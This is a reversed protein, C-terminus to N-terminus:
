FRFVVGAHSQIFQIDPAAIVHYDAGLEFTLNPNYEYGFGFGVNVGFESNGDKPIYFGPGWGFYMSMPGGVKLNYRLNASINMWYTDNVITTDSSFTNYGFFAVVSLLPTFHYDADLLINFGPGFDNSFSGSPISTGGHISASWRRFTPFDRPPAFPKKDIDISIKAGAKIESHSVIIEKTYTGDINDNLKIRRAGVVAEVKHGPGLYNAIKDKPAVKVMFYQGDATKKSQRIDIDSHKSNINVENYFAKTWERTTKLGDGGPIGSAVIRLTYSGPIKTKDFSNAYTGDNPQGDSHCGDDFLEFSTEGHQLIEGGAQEALIQLKRDIMSVTDGNIVHIKKLEDLSVKGEHLLNGAGVIPVNCYVNIKAGTLPKGYKSLGAKVMVSNGTLNFLKNFVVDLEAGGEAFATTSYRVKQNNPIESTGLLRMKWEGALDGLLDGSLPFDLQYFSYRPNEGYRIKNNQTAPTIVKGSPTILELDIAEDVGEWYATFTVGDQDATVVVSVTDADDRALEGVPDTIVTWDVAGALVEIFFKRFILEDSTIRYTGGTAEALDTLKGENIGSSYGLGLPYVAIENAILDGQVDAIWLPTNEKGDTVLLVVQDPNPSAITTFQNLAENLGDGISTSGGKDISPITTTRLLTARAASLESLDADYAPDFPVVDHNFQVLGLRNGIDPKMMQVFHDAALRLIEIKRTTAGSVAYGGMSGSRDLVQIIDVKGELQQEPLDGAILSYRQYPFPLDSAKVKITWTGTDPNEIAVQEVVNVGDRHVEALAESAYSNRIAPTAPNAPDLEWPPYFATGAPNIILLDLDNELIDAAGPTGASDDWALTVKLEDEGPSVDFTYIDEDTASIIVGERFRKNRIVNVAEEANVLGYGYVYDPGVLDAGGGPNDDLDAATHCLIAKFTSPLPADDMTDDGFYTQRYQQIMLSIIGSVLPAAMSTGTKIGYPYTYDDLGDPVNGPGWDPILANNVDDIFLNAVCSNIGGDGGTEDGPAVVDPKIQGEDTPGWSSKISITNDDSNINGVVITNKAAGGPQTVSNYINNSNGASFIIPITRGYTGRVIRDYKASRTRYDGGNNGWSNTSIDIGYTNIAGNHDEPEHDLNDVVTSYSFIDAQEAVGRWQNPIGGEGASLSGDGALIGAVHTAHDKVDVNHIITVRGVLDGHTDDPNGSEWQGVQINTGDLNYPAAWLPNVSAAPAAGDNHDEDPPGVEEIWQVADEGALHEIESENLRLVVDNLMGRERVIEGYRRVINSLTDPPVDPFLVVIVDVRGDPQRNYDGVGEKSIKPEIKDESKIEGVWRVEGLTPIRRVKEAVTFELAQRDSVTAYWTYSGIYSLLKIGLKELAVREKKDLHKKLQLFVHRKEGRELQASLSDRFIQKIGPAPTFVRSKLTIKYKTKEKTQAYVPGPLLFLFAGLLVSFLLISSLHNFWMTSNRFSNKHVM